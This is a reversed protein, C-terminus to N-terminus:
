LSGVVRVVMDLLRDLMAPEFRDAEAHSIVFGGARLELTGVFGMGMLVQRLPLPLAVMAEERSPAQVEFRQEFQPDGLLGGPRGSGALDDLFKLGAAMGDAIGVVKKSRIAARFRARPTTCLAWMARDEGTAKRITDAIRLEGVIVQTGM